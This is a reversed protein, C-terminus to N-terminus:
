KLEELPPLPLKDLEQVQNELLVTVPKAKYDHVAWVFAVGIMLVCLSLAIIGAKLWEYREKLQNLCRTQFVAIQFYSDVKRKRKIPIVNASM